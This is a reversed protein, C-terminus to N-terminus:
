QLLKKYKNKVFYNKKPNYFLDKPRYETEYAPSKYYNSNNTPLNRNSNNQSVPTIKTNSPMTVHNNKLNSNTITNINVNTNKNIESEQFRYNKSTVNRDSSEKSDIIKISDM